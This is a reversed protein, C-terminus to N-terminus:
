QVRKIVVTSLDSVACFQRGANGKCSANAATPNNLLDDDGFVVRVQVKYLNGSINDVVLSSIRMRPSLLERGPLVGSVSMDQGGTPATCGSVTRVVLAHKTQNAGPSGDVLQYGPRYSYQVDGLCFDYNGGPTPTGSFTEGINGGGFQIGQSITDVISRATNQVNAETVGKYYVRSFQLIGTTVIILVTSFVATAVLLEIITFGKTQRHPQTTHSM